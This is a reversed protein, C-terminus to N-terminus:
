EHYCCHQTGVKTCNGKGFDSEVWALEKGSISWTLTPERKKKKKIVIQNSM